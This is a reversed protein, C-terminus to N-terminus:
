LLGYYSVMDYIQSMPAVDGTGSQNYDYSMLNLFDFYNYTSNAIPGTFWTSVAMTLLKGKPKLRSSLESVFADFNNWVNELYASGHLIGVIGGTDGGENWNDESGIQIDGVNHTNIITHEGTGNLTGAIGGCGYVANTSIICTIKNYNGCGDILCNEGYGIIGGAHGNNCNIPGYNHCNIMKVTGECYGAIGAM